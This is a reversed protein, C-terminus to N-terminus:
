GAYAMTGSALCGFPRVAFTQISIHEFACSFPAVRFAFSRVLPVTDNYSFVCPPVPNKKPIWEYMKETPGETKGRRSSDCVSFSNSSAM